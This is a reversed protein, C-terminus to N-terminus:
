LKLKGSQYRNMNHEFGISPNKNAVYFVGASSFHLVVVFAAFIGFIIRSIGPEGKLCHTTATYILFVIYLDIMLSFFLLMWYAMALHYAAYALPYMFICSAVAKVATEFQMEGKTLYSFFMMVGGLGFTIVVGYVSMLLMSAAADLFSISGLSFLIKIGAAILGYILVKVITDEYKGDARIGAFYKVPNLIIGVMDTIFKEVRISRVKKQADKFYKGPAAFAPKEKAKRAASKPAPKRAKKKLVM